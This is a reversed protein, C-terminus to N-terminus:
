FPKSSGFNELSIYCISPWSKTHLKGLSIKYLYAKKRKNQLNGENGAHAQNRQGPIDGGGSPPTEPIAQMAKATSFLPSSHGDEGMPWGYALAAGM